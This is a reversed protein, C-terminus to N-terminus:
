KKNKTGTYTDMNLIEMLVEPHAIKKFGFKSYLSHADRTGLLWKKMGQLDPYKLIIDMLWKSLGKGRYEKIIFVDHLYAFRAFDTIVRAFGVQKKNDYVGFCLSNKVATKVIGYPVGKAWYSDKLFNHILKLNLKNKNTTIIFNGKRVIM